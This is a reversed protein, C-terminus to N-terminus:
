KLAKYVSSLLKPSLHKGLMCSVRFETGLVPYSPNAFWAQLGLMRPSSLFIPFEYRRPQMAPKLIDLRYMLGHRLVHFLSFLMFLQFNINVIFNIHFQQM